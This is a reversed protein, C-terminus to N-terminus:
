AYTNEDIDVSTTMTSNFLIFMGGVKVENVPIQVPPPYLIWGKKGKVLLTSPFEVRIDGHGYKFFFDEQKTM